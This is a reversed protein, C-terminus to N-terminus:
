EVIVVLNMYNMKNGVYEGCFGFFSLSCGYLSGFKFYVVVSDLVSFFVYCICCDIVYMFWKMELDLKYDIVWGNELVFLFKMLGRIM